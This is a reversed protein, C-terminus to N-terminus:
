LRIDYDYGMRGNSNRIAGVAGEEVGVMFFIECRTAMM